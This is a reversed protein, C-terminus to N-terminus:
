VDPVVRTAEGAVANPTQWELLKLFRQVRLVYQVPEWGRCYGRKARDYWQENALLPLQKSV